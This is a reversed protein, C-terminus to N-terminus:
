SVQGGNLAKPQPGFRKRVNAQCALPSWKGTLKRGLDRTGDAIEAFTRKVLDENFIYSDVPGVHKKVRNLKYSGFQLVRLRDHKKFSTNTLYVSKLDKKVGLKRQMTQATAIIRRKVRNPINEETQSEKIIKNLLTIPIDKKSMTRYLKKVLTRPIDELTINKRRRVTNENENRREPTPPLEPREYVPAKAELVEVYRMNLKKLKFDPITPCKLCNIARHEKMIHADLARWNQQSFFARYQRM